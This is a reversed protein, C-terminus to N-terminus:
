FSMFLSCIAMAGHARSCNGGRAKGIVFVFFGAVPNAQVWNLFSKVVGRIHQTTASDIIVYIIFGLLLLGVLAKCYLSSRTNNNLNAEDEAEGDASVAVANGTDTLTTDGTQEVDEFPVSADSKHNSDHSSNQNPPPIM